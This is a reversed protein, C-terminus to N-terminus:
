AADVGRAENRAEIMEDAIRQGEPTPMAGRAVYRGMPYHLLGKRELAALHDAVGNTSEIGLAECLERVTPSAGFAARFSAVECLVDLQRETPPRTGRNYGTPGRDGGSAATSECGVTETEATDEPDRVMDGNVHHKLGEPKATKTKTHSM